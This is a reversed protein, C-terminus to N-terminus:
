SRQWSSHFKRTDWYITADNLFPLIDEVDPRASRDGLWCQEVARWLGETFGLRAAEEPQAPRVGEIIANVVLIDSQVMVYPHHGCLVEPTVM